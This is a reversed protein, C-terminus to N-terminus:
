SKTEEGNGDNNIAAIQNLDTLTRMIKSKEAQSNNIVSNQDTSKAELSKINNTLTRISAETKIISSNLQEIMKDRQLKDNDSFFSTVNEFISPKHDRLANIERNCKDRETVLTELQSKSTQINTNIREVNKEAETIRIDLINSQSDLKNKWPKLKNILDDHIRKLNDRHAQYVKKLENDDGNNIKGHVSSIERKINDSIQKASTIEVKLIESNPNFDLSGISVKLSVVKTDCEAKAKDIQRNDNIKPITFSKGTLPTVPPFLNSDNEIPFLASNNVVTANLGTASSLWTSIANSSVNFGNENENFVSRILIRLNNPIEKYGGLGCWGNGTNKNLVLSLVEKYNIIQNSCIQNISCLCAEMDCSDLSLHQDDSKFGDNSGSRKQAAKDVFCRLETLKEVLAKRTGQDWGMIQNRIYSKNPKLNGSAYDTIVTNFETTYHHNDPDTQGGLSRVPNSGSRIRVDNVM